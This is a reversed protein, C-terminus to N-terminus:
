SKPKLIEEKYFKIGALFARSAAQKYDKGEVYHMMGKMIKERETDQDKSITRIM